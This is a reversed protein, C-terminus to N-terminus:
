ISSLLYNYSEYINSIDTIMDRYLEIIIRGNFRKKELLQILKKINLNGEGLPICDLEDNRDSIHMHIINEGVANIFTEDSIGSRLAQKNDFVLAVDNDLYTIMTKLFNLNGSKCRAVNEQAVIVGYEKGLDRLKAFRIFYEENSMLGQKRDGHFVFVNAGLENMVDFYRRHYELADQFRREYNTFLMFPEFGCTFPHVSVVNQANAKIRKSLEKVYNKEIESFTNFFIEINRVGHKALHQIADEVLMPYFSATSIGAEM